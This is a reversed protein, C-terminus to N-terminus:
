MLGTVATRRGCLARATRQRTAAGTQSLLDSSFSARSVSCRGCSGRIRSPLHEDTTLVISLVKARVVTTGAVKSAGNVMGANM